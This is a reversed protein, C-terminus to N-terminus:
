PKHPAQLGSLDDMPVPIVLFTKPNLSQRPFTGELKVWLLSGQCDLVESSRCNLFRTKSGHLIDADRADWPLCDWPNMRSFAISGKRWNM